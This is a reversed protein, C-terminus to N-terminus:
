GENMVMLNRPHKNVLIDKQKASSVHTYIETTNLYTSIIAESIENGIVSYLTFGVCSVSDSISVNLSIIISFRLFSLGIIIAPSELM